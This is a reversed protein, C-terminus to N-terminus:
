EVSFRISLAAPPSPRRHPLHEGILLGWIVHSEAPGMAGQAVCFANREPDAMVAWCISTPLIGAPHRHPEHDNVGRLQLSSVLDALV